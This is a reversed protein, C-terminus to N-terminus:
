ARSPGRSARIRGRGWPKGTADCAVAYVTLLAASSKVDLLACEEKTPNRATIHEVIHDLATGARRGSRRQTGRWPPTREPIGLTRSERDRGAVPRDKGRISM